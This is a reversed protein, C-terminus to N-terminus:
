PHLFFDKKSTLWERVLLVTDLSLIDDMPNRLIVKLRTKIQLLIKQYFGNM